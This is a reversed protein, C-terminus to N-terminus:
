LHRKIDDQKVGVMARQQGHTAKAASRVCPRSRNTGNRHIRGITQFSVGFMPGIEYTSRKGKLALIQALQSDNIKGTSGWTNPPITGHQRRDLPNDSRTKWSLHQPHVCGLHGRGCSHAPVHGPAPAPGNVLDCMKRHAKVLRGEFSLVGYGRFKSERYSRRCILCEVCKHGIHAMLWQIDVGKGRVPDM